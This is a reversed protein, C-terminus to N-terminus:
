SYLKFNEKFQLCVFKKKYKRQKAQKVLVRICIEKSYQLMFEFFFYKQDLKNVTEYKNFYRLEWLTFM